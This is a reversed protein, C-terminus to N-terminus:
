LAELQTILWRGDAKVLHVRVTSAAHQPEVGARRIEGDLYLLVVASEPEARILAAGSTTWNTSTQEAKATPIVAEATYKDFYELFAGTLNSKANAVDADVTETKYSLVAPTIDAAVSVATERTQDTARDDLYGAGSICALVVLALTTAAILLYGSGPRPRHAREPTVEAGDSPLNSMMASGISSRRGGPRFISNWLMFGCGAIAIALAMAGFSASRNLLRWSEALGGILLIPFLVDVAGGAVRQHCRSRRHERLPTQDSEIRPTEHEVATSM